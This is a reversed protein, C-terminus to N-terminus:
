RRSYLFFAAKRRGLAIEKREVKKYAIHRIRTMTPFAARGAKLIPRFTKPQTDKNGMKGVENFFNLFNLTHAYPQYPGGTLTRLEPCM